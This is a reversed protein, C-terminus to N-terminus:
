DCSGARTGSLTYRMVTNQGDVRGTDSKSRGTLHLRGFRIVGENTFTGNKGFCSLKYHLTHYVFHQSLVDCSSAQLYKTPIPHASDLCEHLRFQLTGAPLGTISQSVRLNWAGFNYQDAAASQVLGAVFLLGIGTMLRFSM